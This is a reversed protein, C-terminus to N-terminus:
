RALATLDVEGGDAKRVTVKRREGVSTGVGGTWGDEVASTMVGGGGGGSAGFVFTGPPPYAAHQPYYVAPYYGAAAAGAVAAAYPDYPAYAYPDPAYIYPNGYPNVAAAAAAAAAYPDLPPPHAPVFLGSPTMVFPAAQQQQEPDFAGSFPPQQQQQQQQIHQQQHQQQRQQHQQQGVSHQLQQQHQQPRIHDQRFHQPQAPLFSSQGAAPPQQLGETGNVEVPTTAGGSWRKSARKKPSTKSRPGNPVASSPTFAHFTRNPAGLSSIPAATSIPEDSTIAEPAASTTPMSSNVNASADPGAEPGTPRATKLYRKSQKPQVQHNYPMSVGDEAPSSQGVPSGAHLNQQVPHQAAPKPKRPGDHKKWTRPPRAPAADDFKDHVWQKETPDNEADYLTRSFFGSAVPAAAGVASERPMDKDAVFTPAHSAGAGVASAHTSGVPHLTSPGGRGGGRGGRFGGRGRGRGQGRAFRDDHGWFKGISPTFAPDEKLKRRYEEMAAAGRLQPQPAHMASPSTKPKSEAATNAGADFEIEEEEGGDSDTSSADGDSEQGQPDADSHTNLSQVGAVVQEADRDVDAENSPESLESAVADGAVSAAALDDDESDSSEASSGASDSDDNDSIVADDSSRNEEDEDDAATNRRSALFRRSM